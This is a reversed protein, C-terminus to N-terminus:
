APQPISQNAILDARFSFLNEFGFLFERNMAAHFKFFANSTHRGPMCFDHLEIIILPFRDIIPSAETFLALEAGEIDIKLIFPEYDADPYDALLTDISVMNIKTNSPSDSTQYGWAGGGGDQLFATHDRPGIGAEVVRINPMHGLNQHLMQCNAPAPEIAVIASHPYMLNFWAASAGMNAGCDVILPTKGNRLIRENTAAIALKHAPWVGRVTPIRYQQERFCQWVVEHDTSGKRLSLNVVGEATQLRIHKMHRWTKLRALRVLEDVRGGVPLAQDTAIKYLASIM